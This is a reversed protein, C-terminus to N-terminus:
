GRAGDVVNACEAGCWKKVNAALGYENELFWDLDMATEPM